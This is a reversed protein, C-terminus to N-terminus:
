TVTVREMGLRSREEPRMEDAVWSASKRTTRSDQREHESRPGVHSTRTVVRSPMKPDVPGLDPGPVAGTKVLTCRVENSTMRGGMVRTERQALISSRPRGVANSREWALANEEDLEKSWCVGTVM